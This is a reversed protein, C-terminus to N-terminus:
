LLLLTVDQGRGFKNEYLTYLPTVPKVAGVNVATIGIPLTVGGAATSGTV